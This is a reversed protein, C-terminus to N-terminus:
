RYQKFLCKAKDQTHYTYVLLENMFGRNGEGRVDVAVM